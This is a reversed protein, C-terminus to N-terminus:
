DTSWEQSSEQALANGNWSWIRLPAEWTTVSDEVAYYSFGGTIIEIVNDGDADAIFLNHTGHNCTGGVGYTEWHQQAEQILSGYDASVYWIAISCFLLM